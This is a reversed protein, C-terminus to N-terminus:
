PETYDAKWEILLNYRTGVFYQERYFLFSEM